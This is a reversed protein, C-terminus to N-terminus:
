AAREIDTHSFTTARTSCNSGAHRRLLMRLATASTSGRGIVARETRALLTPSAVLREGAGLVAGNFRVRKPEDLAMAVLASSDIVM